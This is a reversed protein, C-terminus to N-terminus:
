ICLSVDNFLAIHVPKSSIQTEHNTVEFEFGLHDIPVKYRRAFNQLVGTLFSQTFYFGSIWFVTPTGGYIWDQQCLLPFWAGCWLTCYVKGILKSFDVFDQGLLLRHRSEITLDGLGLSCWHCLLAHTHAHM